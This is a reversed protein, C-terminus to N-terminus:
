ECSMNASPFSPIMCNEYCGKQDLPRKTEPVVNRQGEGCVFTNVLQVVDFGTNTVVQILM